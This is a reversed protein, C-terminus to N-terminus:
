FYRFIVKKWTDFSWCKLIYYSVFYKPFQMHHGKCLINQMHYLNIFCMFMPMQFIVKAPNEWRRDCKSNVSIKISPIKPGSTTPRCGELFYMEFQGYAMGQFDPAFDM